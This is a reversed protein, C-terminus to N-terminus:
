LWRERRAGTRPSRARWLGSVDRGFSWVLAALAGAVAAVAVPAPLLGSAAATLVIGQGAAVAKRARSPPLPGRLWPAAWAAAGFLYRLVGIVLVWPGLSWSVYVSLVLILFADAEMDFRAGFDSETRTGRAVLGDVGDLVLALVTVPVLVGVPGGDAVLVTVAGILGVRVLTVLDAPGPPWRRYRRVAAVLLVTVVLAYLAGAVWGRTDPWSAPDTM